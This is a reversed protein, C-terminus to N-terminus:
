AGVPALTRYQSSHLDLKVPTSEGARIKGQPHVVYLDSRGDGNLDGTFIINEQNEDNPDIGDSQHRRHVSM